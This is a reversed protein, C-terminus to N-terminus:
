LFHRKAMEKRLCALEKKKWYTPSTVCLKALNQYYNTLEMDPMSKILGRKEKEKFIEALEQGKWFTAKKEYDELLEQFHKLLEGNTMSSIQAFLQNHKRLMFGSLGYLGLLAFLILSSIIEGKSIFLTIM